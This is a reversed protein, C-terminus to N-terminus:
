LTGTLITQMPVKKDIYYKFDIKASSLKNYIEISDKFSKM